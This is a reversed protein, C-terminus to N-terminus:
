DTSPDISRNFAIPWDAPPTYDAAPLRHDPQLVRHHRHHVAHEQEGGCRPDDGGAGLRRVPQEVHTPQRRDSRPRRAPWTRDPLGPITGTKMLSQYMAANEPSADITSGDYSIRGTAELAIADAFGLKLAVDALKRAIVEDATRALNLRELEVESVFMAYQPQPDCAGTFTSHCRRRGDIWEGQLPIVWVTGATSRTRFRRDDRRSGGRLVRAARLVRDVRDRRPPEPVVYKKLIPTGNAARLAIVLDSYVSGTTTEGGGGAGGGGAGGGGGGGGGGPGAALAPTSLVLLAATAASLITGARTRTNM